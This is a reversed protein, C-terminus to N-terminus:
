RDGTVLRQADLWRIYTERDVGATGRAHFYIQEAIKRM